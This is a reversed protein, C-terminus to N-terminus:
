VKSRTSKPATTPLLKSKIRKLLRFPNVALSKEKVPMCPAKRMMPLKIPTCTVATGSGADGPHQHRGDDEERAASEPSPWKVAGFPSLPNQTGPDGRDAM